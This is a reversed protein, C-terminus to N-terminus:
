PGDRNAAARERRLRVLAWAQLGTLVLPGVTKGIDGHILGVIADLAQIGGALAGLVLLPLPARLAIAIAVAAALALTRAAAYMAFIASAGSPETGPPVIFGPWLLGALAFGSAVAVNLATVIAANRFAAAYSANM